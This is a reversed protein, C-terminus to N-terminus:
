AGAIFLLVARLLGLLLGFPLAFGVWFVLELPLLLCSLVPASPSGTLLMTGPVVEAVCVALFGVLLPVSMVLGVKEFAGGGYTPFGLFTWM